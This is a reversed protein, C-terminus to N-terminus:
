RFKRGRPTRAGRQSSQVARVAPARKATALSIASRAHHPPLGAPHDTHCHHSEAVTRPPRDCFRSTLVYREGAMKRSLAACSQMQAFCSSSMPFACCLRRRSSSDVPLRPRRSPNAGTRSVGSIYSCNSISLPPGDVTPVLLSHTRYVSLLVRPAAYVCHWWLSRLVESKIEFGLNAGKANGASADGTKAEVAESTAAAPSPTGLWGVELIETWNGLQDSREATSLLAARIGDEFLELVLFWGALAPEDALLPM